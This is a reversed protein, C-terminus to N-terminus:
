RAILVVDDIRTWRCGAAVYRLLVVARRWAATAAAATAHRVFYRWGACSGAVSTTWSVNCQCHSCWGRRSRRNLQVVQVVQKVRKKPRDYVVMTVQHRVKDLAGFSIILKKMLGLVESKVSQKTHHMEVGDMLKSDNRNPKQDSESITKGCSLRKDDCICVATSRRKAEAPGRM